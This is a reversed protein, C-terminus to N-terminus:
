SSLSNLLSGSGDVPASSKGLEDVDEDSVGSLKQAVTFLRTLVDVRLEGLWEADADEMARSGDEEVASAAVLRARINTTSVRRHRGKGVILAAEWADRERGTMGQLTISTIGYEALEPTQVVERPLSPAGAQAAKRLADKLSM